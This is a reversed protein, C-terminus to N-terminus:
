AIHSQAVMSCKESRSIKLYQHTCVYDPCSYSPPETCFNEQFNKKRIYRQTHLRRLRMCLYLNDALCNDISLTKIFEAFKATALTKLVLSIAVMKTIEPVPHWPTNVSATEPGSCPWSKPWYSHTTHNKSSGKVSCRFLSLSSHTIYRNWTPHKLSIEIAKLHGTGRVCGTHFMIDTRTMTGTGTGSVALTFVGYELM